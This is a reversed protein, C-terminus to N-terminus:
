SHKTFSAVGTGISGPCGHVGMVATKRHRRRSRTKVIILIECESSRADHYIRINSALSICLKEFKNSLTNEMNRAPGSDMM